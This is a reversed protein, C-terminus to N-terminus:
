SARGGHRAGSPRLRHVVAARAALFGVLGAAASPWGGTRVLLVFTAVTGGVRLLYSAMVLLVPRRATPLAQLTEWLGAVCAVGAACGALLAGALWPLETM